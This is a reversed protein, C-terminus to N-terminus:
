HLEVWMLQPENDIREILAVGYEDKYIVTVSVTWVQTRNPYCDQDDCSWSDGISANKIDDAFLRIEQGFEPCCGEYNYVPTEKILNTKM